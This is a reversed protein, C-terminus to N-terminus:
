RSFSAASCCCRSAPAPPAFFFGLLCPVACCWRQSRPASAIGAPRRSLRRSVHWIGVLLFATVLQGAEVLAGRATLLEASVDHFRDHHPLASATDRHGSRHRAPRRARMRRPSGGASPWARDGSTRAGSPSIFGRHWCVSCCSCSRDTAGSACALLAAITVPGLAFGLSGGIQFISIGGRVGQDASCPPTNGRKRTCSRGVSATRDVILLALVGLSRYAIRVLDRRRGHLVGTPM